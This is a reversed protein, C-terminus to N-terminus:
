NILIVESSIVISYYQNADVQIAKDFMYYKRQIIKTGMEVVYGTACTRLKIVGNRCGSSSMKHVGIGVIYIKKDAYFSCSLTLFYKLVGKLAYLITIIIDFEGLQIHM